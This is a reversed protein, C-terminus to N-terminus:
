LSPVGATADGLTNGAQDKIKSTTFVIQYSGRKLRGKPDILVERGKKAVKVKAKVKIKFKGKANARMLTVTKKSAGKVPESFRVKLTSKATLKKPTVKLVRPADADIWFTRAPSVGLVKGSSDLATVQWTYTGTQIESPAFATGVTNVTQNNTGARISLQYGSAGQVDTWEFYSGNFAQNAGNGPTLLEPASGLSVFAGATWPGQNGRSDIRRVRWVYPTSSAALPEGPTFAPNAVSASIVRNPPSFATDGNKYVEVEYGRAYAQPAWTLPVTGPVAVGGVPSKLSIAPSSKVLQAVDSWTLANDQLDIAQVRWYLRGEPYLRDGSTYTAQDVTAQDILPEAFSPENDVQIRYQKASQQGTEGYTPTAANTDIYDQWSFTIDSGAPDSSTLGAVGPSAKLFNHAGPLPPNRKVPSPGCTRDAKCPIVYWFYPLGAESEALASREDGSQLAFFHNRTQYQEVNPLPSFTFNEDLGIVVKYYAIGPQRNWTFVPTASLAGCNVSGCGLTTSAAGTGTLAARMGTVVQFPGETGIPAPDDWKIKQPTSWIGPVGGNPYPDDIGSVRWYHVLGPAPSCADFGTGRPAYTTGATYCSSTFNPSFNPDTSVQLVYRSAHQIPTWEYFKREGDLPDVSSDPTAEDGQPWVAVPTDLWNRKFSFRATSWATSQGALDVARVRWWFQDNFLTTAPSYRSGYINQGTFAFNNFGPDTAVQLDYTIAGPVPEWDFVVDEIATNIDDVPYTLKPSPLSGLIFSMPPSPQSNYGGELSATVRWFYDGAPLADPLALSTTRSTYTKAGIFDSDGDVEITYSVAGRSTQWRLLPPEDPQPLVAGDTPYTGVPIGVPTVAFSSSSWGSFQGDREARVRWYQTGRSLNRTPVLRNNRTSDSVEPSSFSSDNDIQYQYSTAGTSRGWSLVPTASNPLRVALTTPAKPAKAASAPAATVALGGAAVALGLAGLGLSRASRHVASVHRRM